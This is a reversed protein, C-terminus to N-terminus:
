NRAKAPKARSLWNSILTELLLLTAAGVLLYWWLGQRRERDEPSLVVAELATAEVDGEATVAGAMEEPDIASLDSERPDLNTAAVYVRDDDGGVYGVRHFGIENLQLFRNEESLRLVSPDGSPREVYLEVEGSAEDDGFMPNEWLDIVNGVTYFPQPQEYNSLYKALQHVYPLFVPQVALDNWFNEFGTAWVMVTGAGQQGEALAISGDDFRALVRASEAGEMRRYRYFRPSSFDGSRPARFLRFVPHDYDLYSLTGGGGSSRDVPGGFAVPLFNIFADPWTGPPSRRGLVVLLGAGEDVLSSLRQGNAGGPFPADNLIVLDRGDFDEPSLRTVRRVDMEFGPQGGVALARRLYLSHDAGGGRPEIILISIPEDPEVVFRFENDDPLDDDGVRVVGQAPRRPVVFNDFQLTIVEGPELSVSQTEIEEGDLELSANVDEFAEVGLNAVQASLAARERGGSRSRTLAARIVALNSADPDAVQVQTLVTGRPLSVVQRADWGTRQFDTILIVESRPRDTREVIERALEIAPGYRTMEGSIELGDLAGGLIARDSTPQTIAEAREAFAVLTARDDPGLGAFARRAANAARDWREGYAMSHSRDLLVVVERAGAFSTAATGDGELLPRAFAAVVLIVALSRMLFLLWHRIKQRRHTKYPIRRVFMLSPFAIADKKERHTLHVIIPIALAALGALFIPALFSFGM